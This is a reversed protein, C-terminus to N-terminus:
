NHKHNIKQERHQEKGTDLHWAGVFAWFPEKKGVGWALSNVPWWFKAQERENSSPMMKQVTSPSLLMFEWGPLHLTDPVTAYSLCTVPTGLGWHQM